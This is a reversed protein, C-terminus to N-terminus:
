RELSGKKIDGKSLQVVTEVHGEFPFMDVPTVGEIQWGLATFRVLDRALTAPNCSVYVLRDASLSSLIEPMKDGLGKRPPDVVITDAQRLTANATEASLVKEADGATFKANAAIGNVVAARGAEAIAAETFDVGYITKIKDCKKAFYVGITGIGCYVDLMNAPGQRDGIAYEFAKDYLKM